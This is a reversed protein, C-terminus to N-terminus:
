EIQKRMAPKIKVIPPRTGEMNGVLSGVFTIKYSCLCSYSSQVDYGKM